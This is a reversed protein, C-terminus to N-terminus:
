IRLFIPRCMALGYVIQWFEKGVKKGTGKKKRNRILHARVLLARMLSRGAIKRMTPLRGHRRAVTIRRVVLMAEVTWIEPTRRVVLM